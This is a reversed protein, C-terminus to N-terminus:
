MRPPMQMGPGQPMMPQGGMDPGPGDPGHDFRHPDLNPDMSQQTNIEDRRDQEESWAATDPVLPRPKLKQCGVIAGILGAYGVAYDALGFNSAYHTFMHLDYLIMGNFYGLVSSINAFDFDKGYEDTLCDKIAKWM